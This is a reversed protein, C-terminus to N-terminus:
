AYIDAEVQEVGQSLRCCTGCYDGEALQMKCVYNVNGGDYDDDEYSVLTTICLLEEGAIREGM